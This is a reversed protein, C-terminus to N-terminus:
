MTNSIGNCIDTFAQVIIDHHCHSNLELFCNLLDQLDDKSYIEKELIMQIMSRRFDHYPHDSVKAVAVSDSIKSCHATATNSSNQESCHPSSTADVNLSFTTSTHEDDDVSHATGGREWSSSSSHYFCTTSKEKQHNNHSPTKSNPKPEPQFIDSLKPKGCGCGGCFINKFSTKKNSSM